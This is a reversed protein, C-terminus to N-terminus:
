AEPRRISSNVRATSAVSNAEAVGREDVLDDLMDAFARDLDREAIQGRMVFPAPDLEDFAAASPMELGRGIERVKKAARALLRPPQRSRGGLSQRDDGIM